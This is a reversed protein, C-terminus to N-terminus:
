KVMPDLNGKTSATNSSASTFSGAQVPPGSTASGGQVDKHTHSALDSALQQVIGMLDSLLQLSNNNSNGLWISPGEIHQEAGAVSSKIAEIQEQYNACTDAIDAQTVRSWNGNNDAMQYVGEAQQIIVAKNDLAPVTLGEILVTRVFPRNPLGRIFGLEVLTGVDPFGFVGRQNAAMTVPLPVSELVPQLEDPEGLDNLLQVDVCYLPAAGTSEAAAFAFPASAVRGWQPLHLGATLEPFLRKVLRKIIAEM